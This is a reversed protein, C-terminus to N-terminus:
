PKRLHRFNRRPHIMPDRQALDRDARMREDRLNTATALERPPQQSETDPDAGLHANEMVPASPDHQGFAISPHGQAAPNSLLEQHLGQSRDLRFPLRCEQPGSKQSM